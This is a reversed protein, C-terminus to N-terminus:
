LLEWGLRREQPEWSQTSGQEKSRVMLIPDNKHYDDNEPYDDWRSVYICIDDRDMSRVWLIQDNKSLRIIITRMIIILGQSLLRLIIPIYLYWGPGHKQGDFNSLERSLRIIMMWMIIILGQSLLRKIIPIYFYWGPGHKQCEFNAWEQSLRIIITRMIIIMRPIIM